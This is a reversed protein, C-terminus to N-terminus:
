PNSALLDRAVNDGLYEPSLMIARIVARISFDSEHAVDWLHKYLTREDERFRLPRGFYFNVHTNLITRVFREKRVAQLAFAELGKGKFPYEAVSSRDSSDIRDGAEDYEHYKGADDWNLRQFALPTLIKHCSYCNSNPDTTGLATVGERQEVIEPPVEYVYGLFLMTVQAAYNYHPLGPKGEIFGKTTLVGTRGHYAPREKRNFSEDVTYDGVLIEQFPRDNFAIYSWIRAPEDQSSTGQSELYLRVRHFYFDRFEESELYHDILGALSTDQELQAIEESSAPRGVLDLAIKNLQTKASKSPTSAPQSIAGTFLFDPHRVLASSLAIWALERSDQRPAHFRIKPQNWNEVDVSPGSIQKWHFDLQSQHTTFSESADLCIEADSKALRPSSIKIVPSSKNAKVSVPVQPEHDRKGPYYIRVKYYHSSDWDAINESNLSYTLELEGKRKNEDHLKKGRVNYARFSGESYAKWDDSGNADASDILFRKKSDSVSVFEVAGATVRAYTNDNTIQVFDSESFQYQGPIEFYPVSDNGCDYHFRAIEDEFQVESSLAALHNQSEALDDARLETLVTKSNTEKRHWLCYVDFKGEHESRLNVRILSNGKHQNKDELYKTGKVQEFQWAGELEVADSDALIRQTTGHEHSTLLVGAFTVNRSTGHNYITLTGSHSPGLIISGMKSSGFDDPVDNSDAQEVLSLSFPTFVKGLIQPITPSVNPALTQDVIVQRVFQESGSVPVTLTHSAFLKTTPDTATLEFKLETDRTRITKEFSTVQQLLDNAAAIETANPARGLIKQYLQQIGHEQAERLGEINEQELLQRPFDEFPGSGRRIARSSVDRALSELASLYAPSPSSSENFRTEFDAGGFASIHLKFRDESGRVWEDGFVSKIRAKLQRYTLFQTPNTSSKTESYESLLSRPFREDPAEGLNKSEKEVLKALKKLKRINKPAWEPADKPMRRDPNTSQIRGILTDPGVHNLYGNDLLHRFDQLEIGTLVLNSMTSSSHCDVCGASEDQLIPSLLQQYKKFLKAEWEEM